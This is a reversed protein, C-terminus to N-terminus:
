TTQSANLTTFDPSVTLFCPKLVKFQAVTKVKLFSRTNAMNQVAQVQTQDFKSLRILNRVM